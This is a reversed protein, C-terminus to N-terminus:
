TINNETFNEYPSKSIHPDNRTHDPVSADQILHIIHGLTFMAMEKDGQIWYKIAEKWTFNSTPFFKEIKGYQISSLITAIIPSYKTKNQNLGDQAWIKSEQWNGLKYFPDIKSDQTLGRQYVPDYFHNMWRPPDDERRIGDMLYSEYGRISQGSPFSQSYLKITENTLFEHTPLEYAFVVKTIVFIGLLIITPSIFNVFKRNEM